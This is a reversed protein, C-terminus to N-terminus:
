FIFIDTKDFFIKYIIIQPRFIQLSRITEFDKYVIFYKFDQKGFPLKNSVVIKNIDIIPGKNQYFKYEEIESDDFKIIKKDM